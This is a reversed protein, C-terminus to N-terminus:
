FVLGSLFSFMKIYFSQVYVYWSPVFIVGNIKVIVKDFRARNQYIEACM